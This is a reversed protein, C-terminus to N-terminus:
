GTGPNSYAARKVVESYFSEDFVLSLSLRKRRNAIGSRRDDAIYTNLKRRDPGGERREPRLKEPVSENTPQLVLTVLKVNKM